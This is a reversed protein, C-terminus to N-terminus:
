KSRNKEVIAILIMAYAIVKISFVYWPTEATEGLAALIIRQVALTWFSACFWGFLRDRTRSWFRLFFLGAVFYAMAVLGFVFPVM